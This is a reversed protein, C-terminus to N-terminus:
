RASVTLLWSPNKGIEELGMRLAVRAITLRPVIPVKAAVADLRRRDEDSLRLSVVETLKDGV